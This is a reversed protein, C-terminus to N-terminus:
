EAGLSIMYKDRCDKQTILLSNKHVTGVAPNM